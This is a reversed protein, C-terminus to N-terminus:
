EDDPDLRATRIPEGPALPQLALEPNFGPQNLVDSGTLPIFRRSVFTPKPNFLDLLIEELQESTAIKQRNKFYIDIDNALDECTQYRDDPDERMCTDCLQALQPDVDALDDLPNRRMKARIRERRQDAASEAAFRDTNTLLLYLLLGINYIDSRRDLERGELQEPSCYLLKGAHPFMKDTTRRVPLAIGFDSVKVRGFRDLLINEPSIDRHVLGLHSGQEDEYEHVYQLGRAVRGAVYLTMEHNLIIRLNRLRSVIERLNWGDIFQMVAYYVTHRRPVRASRRNGPAQVHIEESELRYIPLLNPHNFQISLRVENLFQDVRRPDLSDKVFKLAVPRMLNGASFEHALCTVGMGGEGLVRQVEYRAQSFLAAGRQRLEDEGAAILERLEQSTNRM